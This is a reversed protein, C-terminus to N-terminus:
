KHKIPEGDEPIVNQIFNRLEENGKIMDEKRVYLMHGSKYSTFHIRNQLKGTPDLHWLSYKASLVDCAGDYYGQQNLLQLAPNAEMAQRLQDGVNFRSFGFGSNVADRKWPHVPGFVYYKLDTKFGLDERLYKNMAPTFANEWALLEANYDSREGANQEDIGKYRMDLRGITMGEDRLLEKWFSSSSVVLNHNLIYQKSLGSYRGVQQAIEEKEAGTLSGSRAVAPLYTDFIFQEVEPFIETLDRSQLDRPLKNHYWAAATYSALKLVSATPSGFDPTKGIGCNGQLIVGNLFINNNSQMVGAMGSVRTTGYSEGMLFKPSTWRENRSIFLEIWDSLYEVDVKVGFYDEKKGDNIIRSFGTNVPNIYVLDTVDLISHHNDEVGYPQVPWGEDSVNLRKPGTYGINMWLSATGPGGNFSFLIPRHSMDKIDTRKFYMYQVYAGPEGNDDYVPLTGVTVDYPIKQGDITIQHSSVVSTDAPLKEQAQVATLEIFFLGLFVAIFTLNIKKLYNLM